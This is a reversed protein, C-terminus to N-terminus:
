ADPEGEPEPYKGTGECVLREMEVWAAEGTKPDNAPREVRGEGNCNRCKDEDPMMSRM